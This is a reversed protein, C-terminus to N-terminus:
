SRKPRAVAGPTDELAAIHAARRHIDSVRRDLLEFSAHDAAAYPGTANAFAWGEERLQAALTARETARHGPRFLQTVGGALAVTLGLGFVVWSASSGRTGSGTAVAIGSTAFGGGVVGLNLLAYFRGGRSAQILLSRLPYTFRSALWDQLRDAASPLPELRHLRELMHDQLQFVARLEYDPVGGPWRLGRRRPTMRIPREETM